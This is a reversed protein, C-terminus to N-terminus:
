ARARFQEIEEVEKAVSTLVECGRDTVLVDDEIRVGIGFYEGFQEQSRFYLGPEVTFCMGASLLIRQGSDDIYPSPDHVDMGIWHSTSHPMLNAIQARVLDESLNLKSLEEILSATTLDHIEQLSTGPKISKLALKQAALVSQYIEKQRISFSKGAPMVRTIDSCYGNWEGGADVLILEGAQVTRDSARAHLLTSREGSGVITEYATWQMDELLFSGEIWNSIQRETKGIFSQQMLRNHVRSSRAAAQRINAMESDDKVLRVTGVLSRSDCIVLPSGFRGRLKRDFSIISLLSQELNKDREFSVAIRDFQHIHSRVIEEFRDLSDFIIDKSRQMDEDSLVTNEGWVVENHKEYLLYTKDGAILLLADSLHLGCLYSFDSATKFRYKM